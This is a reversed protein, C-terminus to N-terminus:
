KSFSQVRKRTDRETGDAEGGRGEGWGEAAENGSTAKDMAGKTIANVASVRAHGRRSEVLPSVNCTNENSRSCEGVGRRCASRPTRPEAITMCIVLAITSGSM